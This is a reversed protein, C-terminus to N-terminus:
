DSFQNDKTKDFLSYLRNKTFSGGIQLQSVKNVSNMRINENM